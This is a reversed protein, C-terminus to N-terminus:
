LVLGCADSPLDTTFIHTPAHQAADAVASVHPCHLFMPLALAACAPSVLVLMIFGNKLIYALEKVKLHRQKHRQGPKQKRLVHM